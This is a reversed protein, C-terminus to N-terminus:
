ANVLEHFKRHSAGRSVAYGEVNTIAGSPVIRNALTLLACPLRAGASATRFVSESTFGTSVDSGYVGPRYAHEERLDLVMNPAVIGPATLDDV